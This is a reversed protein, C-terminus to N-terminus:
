EGIDIKGFLNFERAPHTALPYYERTTNRFGEYKQAGGRLPNHDMELIVKLIRALNPRGELCKFTAGSLGQASLSLQHPETDLTADRVLTVPM